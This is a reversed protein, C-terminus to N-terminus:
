SLLFPHQRRLPLKQLLLTQILLTHASLVARSQRACRVWGGHVTTVMVVDGGGAAAAWGATLIHRDPFYFRRCPRRRSPSTQATLASVRRRFLVIRAAAFQHGYRLVSHEWRLLQPMGAYWGVAHRLKDTRFFPFNLDVKYPTGNTFFVFKKKSIRKNQVHMSCRTHSLICNIECNFAASLMFFFCSSFLVSYFVFTFCYM